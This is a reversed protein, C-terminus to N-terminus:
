KRKKKERQKPSSHLLIRYSIQVHYRTHNYHIVIYFIIIKMLTALCLLVNVKYVANTM